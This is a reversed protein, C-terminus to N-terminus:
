RTVQAISLNREAEVWDAIVQSFNRLSDRLTFITLAGVLVGGVLLIFELSVQAREGSIVSEGM